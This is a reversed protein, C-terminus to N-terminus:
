RLYVTQMKRDFFEIGAPELSEGFDRPDTLSAVVRALRTNRHAIRTAALPGRIAAVRAYGAGASIM